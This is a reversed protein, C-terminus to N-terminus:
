RVIRFFRQVEEVFLAPQEFAAFHGGREVSRWYRLDTYTREVWHRPATFLDKPFLSVGAPVGVTGVGASPQRYNEWYLQASSAATGPLWYAMINDLLRDAGFAAVPDGGCDTWSWFKELIWACQAAPSDTLGYALTHPRTSQQKFYGSEADQYRRLTDLAAQEAADFENQGPPPTARVMNVHVGAVHDPYRQGLKAAIAAGWDGGQAGYRGYGLRKMLTAWADAIREVGWGTERPHESWGFGPLSPIVLHFSDAADGGCGAPDSLPNITELFEFVSGPWGHTMILPLAGTDQSRVHLFHVGIGDINTKFQDLGNLSAEARRWDYDEAWYRCLDQLYALPVGQTWDLVTAPEPWRTRHLRNRLEALEGDDIEVRYPLIM